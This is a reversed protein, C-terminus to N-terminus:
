TLLYRQELYFARNSLQTFLILFTTLDANKVRKKEKNIEEQNTAASFSFVDLKVVLSGKGRNTLRTYFNM